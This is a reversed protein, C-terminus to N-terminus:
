IIMIDFIKLYDLWEEIVESYTKGEIFANADMNLEWLYDSGYVRAIYYAVSNSQARSIWKENVRTYKYSFCDAFLWYNFNEPSAEVASVKNYLKITEKYTQKENTGSYYPYNEANGSLLYYYMSVAYKSDNALLETIVERMNGSKGKKYLIHHIYEHSFSGVSYLNIYNTSSYSYSEGSIGNSKFGDDLYVDIDYMSGIGFVSNSAATAEANDKLWDSLFNYSTTFYSKPLILDNYEKNIYYTFCGQKVKYEYKTSYPFFFYDPLAIGFKDSLFSNLVDIDMDAIQEETKGSQLLEKVLNYSFSWVYKKENEPLNDTEYIPFQLDTLHEASEISSYVFNSYESIELWQAALGAFVGYPLEQNGSVAQLIWALAEEEATDSKFSAVVKDSMDIDYNAIVKDSIYVTDICDFEKKKLLQSFKLIRDIWKDFVRADELEFDFFVETNECVFKKDYTIDNQRNNLEWTNLSCDELQYKAIYDDTCSTLICCTFLSCSILFFLFLRFKKM